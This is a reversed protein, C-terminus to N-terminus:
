VNVNREYAVSSVDHLLWYKMTPPPVLFRHVGLPLNSALKALYDTAFNAEQFIRVLQVNWEKQLLGKISSIVSSHSNVGDDHCNFQGDGCHATLHDNGM